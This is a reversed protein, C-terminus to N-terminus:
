VLPLLEHNDFPIVPLLDSRIAVLQDSQKMRAVMVTLTTNFRSWESETKAKGGNSRLDQANRMITAWTHIWAEKENHSSEFTAVGSVDLRVFIAGVHLYALFSKLNFPLDQRGSLCLNATDM